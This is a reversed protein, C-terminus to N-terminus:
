HENKGAVQNFLLEQLEVEKKSLAFQKRYAEFASQTVSLGKDTSTTTNNAVQSFLLQELATETSTDASLGLEAIARQNAESLGEYLSNYSRAKPPSNPAKHAVVPAASFTQIPPKSKVIGIAGAPCHLNFYIEPLHDLNEETDM